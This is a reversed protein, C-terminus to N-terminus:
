NLVSSRSRTHLSDVTPGDLFSEAAAQELRVHSEIQSLLLELPINGNGNRGGDERVFFRAPAPAPRHQVVQPERSPEERRTAGAMILCCILLVPVSALLIMFFMVM